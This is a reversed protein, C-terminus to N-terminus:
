EMASREKLNNKEEEKRIEADLRANIKDPEHEQRMQQAVIKSNAGAQHAKFYWMGEVNAKAIQMKGKLNEVAMINETRKNELAMANEHLTRAEKEKRRLSEEKEFSLVMGARMPDDISNIMLMAHYSIEGKKWADITAAKVEQRQFDNNFTDIFIGYRHFAYGGMSEIDILNEEGVAKKLYNYAVSNKYRVIDQSTILTHKCTDEILNLMMTGIYETANRSQQLTEMQLKYGDNPSPSYAERISNIGLDDSIKSVAHDIISMLDKAMSDIGGPKDFNPNIGGGLKEGNIKPLAYIENLGNDFMNIVQHIKEADGGGSGLMKRAVELLSEFGYVRGRPKAKRIIWKTKYFAEVAIKIYPEAVKAVTPGEKKSILISFNSYEDESGEIVQHFLKGFRYLRHSAISTPLGYSKYTVENYYVEKSYKESETEKDISFPFSKFNGYYNKGEKRADADISKWETYFFSVNHQLLTNYDCRKDGEGYVLSEGDWIGTYELNNSYNVAKLLFGMEEDWNYSNGVMKMFDSVKVSDEFGICSADKGDGRKGPVIFVKEPAIYKYEIAGTLENVFARLAIAKKGMIDNVWLDINRKLENNKIFYNIIENGYIEHRLKHHVKFFYDVHYPNNADLGMEDFEEINGHFLKGDKIKKENSIKYEPLGIKSQLNSITNEIESRNKLLTYDSKKEINASPDISNLSVHIGAKNKEGCLINRIKEMISIPLFEFGINNPDSFMKQVDDISYNSLIYQMGKKADTPNVLHKWNQRYHSIIRNAWSIDKKIPNIEFLDKEVIM